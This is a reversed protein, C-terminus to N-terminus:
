LYACNQESIGFHNCLFSLLHNFALYGIGLVGKLEWVNGFMIFLWLVKPLCIVKKGAQEAMSCVSVMKRNMGCPLKEIKWNVAIKKRRRGREEQVMCHNLIDFHNVTKRKSCSGGPQLNPKSTNWSSRMFISQSAWYIQLQSRDNKGKGCYFCLGNLQWLYRAEKSHKNKKRKPYPYSKRKTTPKSSKREM